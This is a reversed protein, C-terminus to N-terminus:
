CDIVVPVRHIDSRSWPVRGAEDLAANAREMTDAVESIERVGVLYAEFPATGSRWRDAIDPLISAVDQVIAPDAGDADIVVLAGREIDFWELDSLMDVLGDLSASPFPFEFVEAASADLQRRDRIGALSWRRVLAGARAAARMRETPDGNVHVTFPTASWAEAKM